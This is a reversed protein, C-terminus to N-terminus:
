SLDHKGSVEGILWGHGIRRAALKNAGTQRLVPLVVCLPPGNLMTLKQGDCEEPFACEDGLRELFAVVDVDSALEDAPFGSRSHIGGIDARSAPVMKSTWTM